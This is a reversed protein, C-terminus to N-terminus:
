RPLVIPFFGTAYWTFMGFSGRGVKRLLQYNGVFDNDNQMRSYRRLSGSQRIGPLHTRM